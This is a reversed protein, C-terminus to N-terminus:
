STLNVLQNSSLQKPWYMMRQIHGNLEYGASPHYRGIALQGTTGPGFLSGSGDTQITEGNWTAKFSNQKATMVGKVIEGRTYTGTANMSASLGSSYVSHFSPKNSFSSNVDNYRFAVHTSGGDSVEFVYCNEADPVTSLVSHSVAFTGEIDNYFDTFDSGTVTVQDAGRTVTTGDTPIYSTGFKGDEQQVGWIYVGSSGDGSYAASSGNNLKIMFQDYSNSHNRTMTCRCWGNALKTTTASVYEGTASGSTTGNVLDHVFPADQHQVHNRGNPKAFFSYTIYKTVQSTSASYFQHSSGGSSEILPMVGVGDTIGEPTEISTNNNSRYDEVGSINWGSSFDRSSTKANTRSEEILLGKCENTVPDHDFRPEHDGILKLLGFETYYSAPGIRRYTIRSDLKKTAAFNFDITPRFNPYDQPTEIEESFVAKGASTIKLRETYSTGTGFIIQGSEIKTLAAANTAGYLNRLTTTTTSLANHDILFGSSAGLRIQGNWNSNSGLSNLVLTSGNSHTFGSWAGIVDTGVGVNGTSTIRVREKLSGGTARTSFQLYADDNASEEKAYISAVQNSTNYATFGGLIEDTAATGNKFLLAPVKGTGGAGEMQLM